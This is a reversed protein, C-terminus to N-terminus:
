GKSVSIGVGQRIQTGVIWQGKYYSNSKEIFTVPRYELNTDDSETGFPFPGLEIYQKRAEEGAYILIDSVKDQEKERWVMQKQTYEKM